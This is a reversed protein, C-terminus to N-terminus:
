SKDIIEGDKSKIFSTMELVIKTDMQLLVVENIINETDILIGM